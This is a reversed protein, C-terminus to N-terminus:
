KRRIKKGCRRLAWLLAMGAVLMPDRGAEPLPIVIDDLNFFFGSDPTASGFDLTATSFAASGVVGLFYARYERGNFSGLTTGDALSLGATAQGPVTLLADLDFLAANPEEPTVLTLGFAQVPQTFTFQLVSGSTFSHFNGPDEVGLSKSGSSAPNNGSDEVVRLQLPAGSPDLVDSIPGPLVIASVSGPPALTAGSVVAGNAHSEFDLAGTAGTVAAEFATRDTYPGSAQAAAVLGFLLVGALQPLLGVLFTFCRTWRVFSVARKV